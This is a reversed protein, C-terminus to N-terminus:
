CKDGKEEVTRTKDDKTLLKVIRSQKHLLLVHCNVIAQKGNDHHMSIGLTRDM